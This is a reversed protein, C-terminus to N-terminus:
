TTQAMDLGARITQGRQADRAWAASKKQGLADGGSTLWLSSQILQQRSRFLLPVTARVAPETRGQEM